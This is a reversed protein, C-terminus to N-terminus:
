LLNEFLSVGTTQEASQQQDAATPLVEAALQEVYAEPFLGQQGGLEGMLWGPEHAGEVGTIIDGPSITLEDPNRADFAFLVKYKIIINSQVAAQSAVTSQPGVSSQQVPATSIISKTPAPNLEDPLSEVYSEPFLGSRGNTEGSLWGPECVVESGVIIDGPTITLEDPNRAEFAYLAQYRKGSAIAAPRDSNTDFGEQDNTSSKQSFESFASYDRSQNFDNNSNNNNSIQKGRNEISENSILGGPQSSTFPGDTFPSPQNFKDGSAAWPDDAPAGFSDTREDAKPSVVSTPAPTFSSPTSDWAADLDIPKSKNDDIFQQRMVKAKAIKEKYNQYVKGAEESISKFENKSEELLQTAASLEKVKEEKENQIDALRTKMQKISEEKVKCAQQDLEISHASNVLNLDKAIAILNQEEHQLFAKRDRVTQLQAELSTILGAKTDRDSRMSDIKAKAEAVQKKWTVLQESLVSIQSDIMKLRRRELEARGKEFNERRKDEFSNALISASTTDSKQSLQDDNAAGASAASSVNSHLSTVSTKRYMPPLLDAPLETPLQNGARVQNTLHMALIFEERTLQGDGDIDSLNWIEALINRPLGSQMLIDRCQLGSLFGSRNRDHINFLQTYKLKAQQPIAWDTTAM